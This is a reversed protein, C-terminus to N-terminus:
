HPLPCISVPIFTWGLYLEIGSCKGTTRNYFYLWRGAYQRFCNRNRIGSANAKICKGTGPCYGSYHAARTCDSGGCTCAASAATVASAAKSGAAACSDTTKSSTASASASASASATYAAVSSANVVANAGHVVVHGADPATNHNPTKDYVEVYYYLSNGDWAAWVQGTTTSPQFEDAARPTAITWPGSFGDERTLSSMDIGSVKNASLQTIAATVPVALAFIMVAFLVLAMIKKM